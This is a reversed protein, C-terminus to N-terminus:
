MRSSLATAISASTACLLLVPALLVLRRLRLALVLAGLTAFIAASALLWSRAQVASLGAEGQVPQNCAPEDGDFCALAGWDTTLWVYGSGLVALLYLGSVSATLFAVVRLWNERLDRAWM